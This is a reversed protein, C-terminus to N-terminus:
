INFQLIFIFKGRCVYFYANSTFKERYKILVFSDVRIPFYFNLEVCEYCRGLLFHDAKSNQWKIRRYGANTSTV